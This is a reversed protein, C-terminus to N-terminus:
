SHFRIRWVRDAYNPIEDHSVQITVAQSCRAIEAFRTRTGTPISLIWPQEIDTFSSGLM